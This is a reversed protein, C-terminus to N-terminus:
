KGSAWAVRFRKFCYSAQLHKDLTFLDNIDLVRRFGLRFLPNLWWFFSRNYIGSTAEPPYDQYEPRLLRQKGLAELVLVFAKVVVAATSVYAIAPNLDDAARLWLTRSRAIDFLLTTFLFTSL